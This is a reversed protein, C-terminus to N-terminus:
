KNLEVEHRPFSIEQVYFHRGIDEYFNTYISSCIKMGEFNKVLDFLCLNFETM